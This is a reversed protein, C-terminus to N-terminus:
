RHVVRALADVVEGNLLLDLRVLDAQRCLCIWPWLDISQKVSQSISQSVSQNIRMSQNISQQISQGTQSHVVQALADVGDNNVLLHLRVLDAQFFGVCAM